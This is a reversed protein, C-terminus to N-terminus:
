TYIYKWEYLEKLSLSFNHVNRRAWLLPFFPYVQKRRQGGGGGTFSCRGMLICRAATGTFLGSDATDLCGKMDLKCHILLDKDSWLQWCYCSIRTKGLLYLTHMCILSLSLSNAVEKEEELM